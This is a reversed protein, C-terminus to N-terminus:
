LTFTPSTIIIQKCVNFYKNRQRMHAVTTRLPNFLKDMLRLYTAPANTLGFLMRRFQYLGCHCVFATKEKSVEAM